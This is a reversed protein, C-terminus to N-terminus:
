RVHCFEGFPSLGPHYLTVRAKLRKPGHFSPWDSWSAVLLEECEVEPQERSICNKLSFGALQNRCASKPASGKQLFFHLTKPRRRFQHIKTLNGSCTRSRSCLRAITSPYALMCTMKKASPSSENSLKGLASRM